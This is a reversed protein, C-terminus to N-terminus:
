RERAIHDHRQARQRHVQVLILQDGFRPRAFRQRVQHSTRQRIARDRAPHLFSSFPQGRRHLADGIQHRGTPDLMGILRADAQLSLQMPQMDVARAPQGMQGPMALPPLLRQLRNANPRAKRAPRDVGVLLREEGLWRRLVCM